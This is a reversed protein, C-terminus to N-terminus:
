QPVVFFVPEPTIIVNSKNRAFDKVYVEFYLTDVKPAPLNSEGFVANLSIEVDAEFDNKAASGLDPLKVSDMKGTLLNKLFVFSTDFNTKFGIDGDGDTLHITLIPANQFPLKVITNPNISKYEIQPASTFKGKNCAALFIFIVVIIFTYRM